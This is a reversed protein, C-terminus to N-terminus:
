DLYHSSATVIRHSDAGFRLNIINFATACAPSFPSSVPCQTMVVGKKVQGKLLFEGCVFFEKIYPHFVKLEIVPMVTLDLFRAM